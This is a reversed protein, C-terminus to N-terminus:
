QAREYVFRLTSPRNGQSARNKPDPQNRITLTIVLEHGDPSVEFTRTMDINDGTIDQTLLNREWRTRFQPKGSSFAMKEFKGSATFKRSVGHEDTITVGDPTATIALQMPVDALDQMLLMAAHEGSFIISQDTGGGGGSGGTMGGQKANSPDLSVQTLPESSADKNFRWAGSMKLQVPQDQGRAVASTAPLCLLIAGAIAPITASLNM